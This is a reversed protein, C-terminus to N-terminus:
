PVVGPRGSTRGHPNPTEDDLSPFPCEPEDPRLLEDHQICRRAERMMWHCSTPHAEARYVDTGTVGCGGPCVAQVTTEARQDTLERDEREARECAGCIIGESVGGCGHCTGPPPPPADKSLSGLQTDFAEVHRDHIERARTAIVHLACPWRHGAGQWEVCGRCNNHADPVHWDLLRRWAGRMGFIERAVVDVDVGM